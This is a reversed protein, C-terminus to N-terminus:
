ATHVPIPAAPAKTKPITKKLSGAVNKLIRENVKITMPIIPNFSEFGHNFLLTPLQCNAPFLFFSNSTPLQCNAPPSLFHQTSLASSSPTPLQCPLPLLASHQTSPSSLSSNATPQILSILSPDGEKRKPHKPNIKSQIHKKHTLRIRRRVM